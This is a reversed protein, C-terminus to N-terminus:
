HRRDHRDDRRDRDRDRSSRNYREDYYSSIFTFFFLRWDNSLLFYVGTEKRQICDKGENQHNVQIVQMIRPSTEQVIQDTAVYFNYWEIM